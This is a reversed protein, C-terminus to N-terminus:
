PLGSPRQNSSLPMNHICVSTDVLVSFLPGYSRIPLLMISAASTRVPNVLRKRVPGEPQSIVPTTIVGSERVM